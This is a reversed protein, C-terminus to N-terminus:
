IGELQTRFDSVGLSSLMSIWQEVESGGESGKRLLERYDHARPAGEHM